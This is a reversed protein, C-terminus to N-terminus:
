LFIHTTIIRLSVCLFYLCCSFYVECQEYTRQQEGKVMRLMRRLMSVTFFRSCFYLLVHRGTRTFSSFRQSSVFRFTRPTNVGFMNGIKFSSLVQKIDLDNCHRKIFHRIKKQIIVIIVNKSLFFSTSLFIRLAISFYYFM